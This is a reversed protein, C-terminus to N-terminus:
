TNEKDETTPENFDLPEPPTYELVPRDPTDFVEEILEHKILLLMAKHLREINDTQNSFSIRNVWPSETVNIGLLPFYLTKLDQLKKDRYETMVRTKHTEWRKLEVEAWDETGMEPEPSDCEKYISRSSVKTYIPEGKSTQHLWGFKDGKWLHAAHHGKSTNLEVIKGYIYKQRRRHYLDPEIIRYWQGVKIENSNM